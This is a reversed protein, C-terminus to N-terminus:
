ATGAALAQVARTYDPEVRAASDAEIGLDHVRGDNLRYIWGHLSLPQKRAWADQVITTRAVHVVQEIVNLECLRDVRVEGEPLAAIMAAHKASVDQV